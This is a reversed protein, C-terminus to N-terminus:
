STGTTAAVYVYIGTVVVLAVTAFVLAWTARVLSKAHHESAESATNVAKAIRETAGDVATQVRVSANDLKVSVGIGQATIQGTLKDLAAILKPMTTSELPYESPM